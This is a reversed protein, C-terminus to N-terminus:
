QEREMYDHWLTLTLYSRWPKAADANIPYRECQRLIALDKELWVDPDGLGRLAIYQCTWPGIGKIALLASLDGACVQAEINPNRMAEAFHLLTRKRMAPMGIKDVVEETIDYPTPFGILPKQQRVLDVLLKTRNIAASVSVQQGFIARCGAEFPTWVGPLRIGRTNATVKLGANNLGEEIQFWDANCDLVRTLTDLIPNIFHPSEVDVNIAFGNKDAQHTATVNAPLGECNLTIQYSDNTVSEIGPICRSAIFERLPAWQYPPRYSLFSTTM